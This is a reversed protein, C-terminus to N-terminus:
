CFGRPQLGAVSERWRVSLFATCVTVACAHMNASCCSWDVCSANLSQISLLDYNRVYCPFFFIPKFPFYLSQIHQHTYCLHFKLCGTSVAPNILIPDYRNQSKFRRVLFRLQFAEQLSVLHVKGGDSTFCLSHFLSCLQQPFYLSLVIREDLTTTTSDTASIQLQVM